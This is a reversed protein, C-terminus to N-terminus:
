RAGPRGASRATMLARPQDPPSPAPRAEEATPAREHRRAPRALLFATALVLALPVLEALTFAPRQGAFGDPLHADPQPTGLGAWLAAALAFGSWGTALATVADPALEVPRVSAV